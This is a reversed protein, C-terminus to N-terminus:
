TASALDGLVRQLLTRAAEGEAAVQWLRATIDNYLEVDDPETVTIETHNIEVLVTDDHITFGHMTITPLPRDIPIIGLRVHPIGILNLLRDIQARMVAVPGIPYRLASEGVLIEVRKAPDYLVDQRQIRARVAEDTDARTGHMEAALEFLSRAYAPTQVLGNVVFLEVSVIRAADRESVAEAHQRDSHGHRLQQKWRDRELRLDVLVGRLRAETEADAGVAPFWVDLDDDAPLTRANEIRSVKSAVWRIHAAFDKGTKFGAKIRLSRLEGAFIQHDREIM